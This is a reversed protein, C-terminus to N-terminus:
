YLDSRLRVASVGELAEHQDSLRDRDGHCLRDIADADPKILTVEKLQIPLMHYVFAPIV